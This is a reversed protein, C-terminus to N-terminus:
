LKKEKFFNKKAEVLIQYSFIKPFLLQFPKLFFLEKFQNYPITRIIKLNASKVLEQITKFTYFKTHTEDMIGFKTYNWNGFLLNLRIQIFAVNPVSIIIAGDDKLYELFYDLTKKPDILHELIDALIIYDYSKKSCDLNKIETNLDCQFVNKYGKSICLNKMNSNFEIGDVICSKDYILAQGLKGDSCGVDLCFSNKKVYKYVESNYSGIYDKQITNFKLSM